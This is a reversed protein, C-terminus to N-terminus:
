GPEGRRVAEDVPQGLAPHPGGGDIRMGHILAVDAQGIRHRRAAFARGMWGKPSRIQSKRTPWPGAARLRRGAGGDPLAPCTRREQNM